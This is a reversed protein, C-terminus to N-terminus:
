FARLYFCYLEFSLIKDGVIATGNM